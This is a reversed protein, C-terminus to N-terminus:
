SNAQDPNTFLMHLHKYIRIIFSLRDLSEGDLRVSDPDRRWTNLNESCANGPAAKQEATSLNWDDAIRFFMRVGAPSLRLSADDIPTDKDSDM